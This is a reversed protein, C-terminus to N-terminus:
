YQMLTHSVQKIAYLANQRSDRWLQVAEPGEERKKELTSKIEELNSRLYPKQESIVSYANTILVFRRHNM